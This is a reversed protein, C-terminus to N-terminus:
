CVEGDDDIYCADSQFRQWAAVFKELERLYAAIATQGSIVRDNDKIAPLLTDRRLVNSEQGPEVVIVKHAIVLDKLTEEISVCTPCDDIPRYFEIM